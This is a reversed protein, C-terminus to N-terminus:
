SSVIFLNILNGITAEGSSDESVESSTRERRSNPPDLHITRVSGRTIRRSHATNTSSLLNGDRMGVSVHVQKGTGTCVSPESM